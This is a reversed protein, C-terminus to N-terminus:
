YSKGENYRLKRAYRGNGKNKSKYTPLQMDCNGCVLRLNTRGNNLSNGDVHDLVLPVRQGCWETIGCIACQSGFSERVYIEVIHVILGRETTGSVSGALWANLYDQSTKLGIPWGAACGRSCYKGRITVCADGCHVCTPRAQRNPGFSKRKFLNTYTVSCSRSCFKPNFTLNECQLCKVEVPQQRTM